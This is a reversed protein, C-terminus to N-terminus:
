RQHICEIQHQMGTTCSSLQEKFFVFAPTLKVMMATSPSRLLLVCSSTFFCPLRSRTSSMCNAFKLSSPRHATGGQKKQECWNHVMLCALCTGTSSKPVPSGVVCTISWTHYEGETCGWMYNIPYGTNVTDIPSVSGSGVLSALTQSM